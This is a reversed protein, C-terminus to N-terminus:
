SSLPISVSPRGKKPLREPRCDPLLGGLLGAQSLCCPLRSWVERPGKQECPCFFTLHQTLGRHGEGLMSGPLSAPQCIPPRSLVSLCASPSPGPKWNLQWEEGTTHDQGPPTVRSLRPKRMQLLHTTLRECTDTFTWLSTTAYAQHGAVTPWHPRQGCGGPSSLLSLWAAAAQPPRSRSLDLAFPLSWTGAAQAKHGLGSDRLLPWSGPAM